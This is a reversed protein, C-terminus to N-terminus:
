KPRPLSGSSSEQPKKPPQSTSSNSPPGAQAAAMAPEGGEAQFQLENAKQETGIASEMYSDQLSQSEQDMLAEEKEASMEPLSAIDRIFKSLVPDPFWTEGLSAMSTMFQGLESLNPNEVPEPKFKPLEEPRWGNMAFLRPVAHRNFVDAIGNVVASLAQKFIGTKDVHMAYSGTSTSGLQIFDALVTSLIDRQLRQIIMNTDMTKSGTSSMLELEYLRTKTAEDVDSPMIVGNHEDRRINRVLNKFAKYMAVSQPDKDKMLKSPIRVVPMGAMDREVGVAEFEEMRKKIFWSRYASRLFSVGEPSNKHAGVRFLLAKEIPITKQEYKPAAMQVMGKIGGNDDFVWRQMTEQARIPLKRWGILGDTYKSRKSPDKEWPGLRRKYVIEHFSWGYVVCTLIETITEEWSQSMDNMVSELFKVAEEGEPTHEEITVTWKTQAILQQIAFVLSHCTADNRWMETFVKVAKTGRLAPLFEEDIIGASRKLGTQGIDKFWDSQTVEFKLDESEEFLPTYANDSM